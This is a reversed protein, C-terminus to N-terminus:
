HVPDYYLHTQPHVPYKGTGLNNCRSLRDFSALLGTLFGKKLISEMAYESCSPTFTCRSVDQSSIFKKYVLFAPTFTNFRSYAVSNKKIVTDKQEFLASFRAIDKQQAFLVLNCNLCFLIISITKM